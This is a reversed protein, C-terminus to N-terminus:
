KILTTAIRKIKSDLVNDDLIECDICDIDVSDINLQLRDISEINIFSQKACIIIKKIKNQNGLEQSFDKNFLIAYVLLQWIDTREISATDLKYKADIIHYIQHSDITEALLFDPYQNILHKEDKKLLFNINNLENSDNSDLYSHIISSAEDGIFLNDTYSELQKEVLKEFVKTLDISVFLQINNNLQTFFLSKITDYIKKNEKIEKKNKYQMLYKPLFEKTIHDDILYRHPSIKLLLNNLKNILGLLINYESICKSEFIKIRYKKLFIITSYVFRILEKQYPVNIFQYNKLPNSEVRNLEEIAMGIDKDSCIVKKMSHAKYNLLYSYLKNLKEIYFNAELQLFNTGINQKFLEIGRKDDQKIDLQSYLQFLKFSLAEVKSILENKDITDEYEIQIDKPLIYLHFYYQKEDETFGDIYTSINNVYSKQRQLSDNFFSYELIRKIEIPTHKPFYKIAKYIDAKKDEFDQFVLYLHNDQIHTLIM